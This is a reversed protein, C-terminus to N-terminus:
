FLVKTCMIQQVHWNHIDCAFANFSPTRKVCKKLTHFSYLPFFHMKLYISVVHKPCKNLIMTVVFSAYITFQKIQPFRFRGCRDSWDVYNLRQSSEMVDMINRFQDVDWTCMVNDAEFSKKTLGIWLPIEVCTGKVWRGWHRMYSDICQTMMPESLPKNGPLHLAMIQVFAPINNIPGKPVFKLSIRIFSCFKENMFICKFIDDALDAAMKDLPSSNVWPTWTICILMLSSPRCQNLYHNWVAM